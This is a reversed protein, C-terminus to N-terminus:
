DAKKERSVLYVVAASLLLYLLTISMAMSMNMPGPRSALQFMALSLTAESGFALFSAAGFEGLSALAAFSLAVLVPKRLMPM